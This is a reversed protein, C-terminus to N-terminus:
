LKSFNQHEIREHGFKSSLFLAIENGVELPKEQVVLHGGGAVRVNSTNTQRRWVTIRANKSGGVLRSAEETGGMIWHLAINDDLTPLLEWGENMTRHEAFEGTESIPDCKLHVQGTTPNCWLGHDLYVEFADQQFAQFLPSKLLAGKAEERSKWSSRRGLTAVLIEPKLKSTNNSVPFLTTELLIIASRTFLKPYSLGCVTIADGGLSHGIGVVTRDGFGRKVRDTSIAPPVRVLELPLDHGFSIEGAPLFNILFNALDRGYDARDPLNPLHKANLIAADGHNTADLSWIEEIRVPSEDHETQELLHRFTPEWIEKHFGNAHLAVLTLSKKGETLTFKKRRIRIATSWLCEPSVKLPVSPDPFRSEAERKHSSMTETTDILWQRKRAKAKSDSGGFYEPSPIELGGYTSQARPFAAPLIHVSLSHTPTFNTVKRELSEPLPNPLPVFYQPTELAALQRRPNVSPEGKLSRELPLFRSISSM